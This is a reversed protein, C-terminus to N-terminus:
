VIPIVMKSLGQLNCNIITFHLYKFMNITQTIIVCNPCINDCVRTRIKMLMRHMPYCLMAHLLVGINAAYRYNFYLKYQAM